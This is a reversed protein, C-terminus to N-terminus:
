QTIIAPPDPVLSQGALVEDFGFCNRPRGPFPERPFSVVKKLAASSRASATVPSEPLTIM